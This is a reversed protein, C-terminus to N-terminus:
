EGGEADDLAGLTAITRATERDVLERAQVQDLVEFLVNARVRRMNKVVPRVLDTKLKGQNVDTLMEHVVLPANGNAVRLIHSKWVDAAGFKAMAFPDADGAATGGIDTIRARNFMRHPVCDRGLGNSAAGFYALMATASQAPQRWVIFDYLYVSAYRWFDRDTLIRAPLSQLGKYLTVALNGELADSKTSSTASDSKQSRWEQLIKELTDNVQEVWDESNDGRYKPELDHPTLQGSSRGEVYAVVDKKSVIPYTM